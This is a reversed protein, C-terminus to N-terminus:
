NPSNLQKSKDTHYLEVLALFGLILFVSYLYSPPTIGFTLGMLVILQLTTSIKGSWISRFEYNLLRGRITLYAGYLMVAFDRSIMMGAELWTLKNEQILVSFAFIVFFKDGLPDLLTGFKNVMQYRRAIYGDLWDTLMAGLVALARVLPDSQLFCFALPFRLASLINPINIM